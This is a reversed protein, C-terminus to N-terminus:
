VLTYSERLLAVADGFFFTRPCIRYRHHRSQKCNRVTRMVAPGPTMIYMCTVLVNVTFTMDQGEFAFVQLNLLMDQLLFSGFYYVLLLCIVPTDFEVFRCASLLPFWASRHCRHGSLMQWPRDLPEVRSLIGGKWSLMYYGEYVCTVRCFPRTVRCSVAFTCIGQIDRVTSTTYALWSISKGRQTRCRALCVLM